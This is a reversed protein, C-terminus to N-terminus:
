LPPGRAQASLAGRGWSADLSPRGGLRGGTRAPPRGRLWLGGGGRGRYRGTMGGDARAVGASRVAARGDVSAPDSTPESIRLIAASTRASAAVPRSIQLRVTPSKEGVSNRM